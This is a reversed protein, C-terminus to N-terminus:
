MNVLRNTDIVKDYIPIILDEKIKGVANWM